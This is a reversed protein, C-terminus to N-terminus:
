KKTKKLLKLLESKKTNNSKSKQTSFETCKSTVKAGCIVLLRFCCSYDEETVRERSYTKFLHKKQLSIYKNKKVPTFWEDCILELPTPGGVWELPENVNVGDFVM